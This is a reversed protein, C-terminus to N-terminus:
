AANKRRRVMGLGALALGILALSGPEPVTNNIALHVQMVNSKNEVTTFGICNSAAGAAACEANTLTGLGDISLVAEYWNTLYQFKQELSNTLPNFGAGAV